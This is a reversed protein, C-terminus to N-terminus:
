VKMVHVEPWGFGVDHQMYFLQKKGDKTRILTKNNEGPKVDANGVWMNFVM